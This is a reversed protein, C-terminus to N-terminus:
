RIWYSFAFLYATLGFTLIATYSLIRWIPKAGKAIRTMYWIQFLGLPFVFFVPFAITVPLGFVMAIGVLLFASLILLNHLSMGREWGLRILLTQNGRKLNVLYDPFEVALLMALHVMTLPFTSMGVLRHIDKYQLVFALAPILNAMIISRIIEGYGSYVLRFPPVCYLIVALLFIGQLILISGNFEKANMLILILSTAASFAAFASWLFVDRRIFLDQEGENVPISIRNGYGPKSPFLFFAALFHFGLQFTTVWAQGLVMRARDIPIGLYHAIGVGLVYVLMGGLLEIPRTTYFLFRVIRIDM